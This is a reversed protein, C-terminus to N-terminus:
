YTGIDPDVREAYADIGGAVNLVHAFGHAKLFRAARESRGGHHCMVAIESQPNLENLRAPLEGLPIHLAGELRAADLEFPERVDLLLFDRGSARWHALEEVTLENM